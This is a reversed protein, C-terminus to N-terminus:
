QELTNRLIKKLRPKDYSNVYGAIAEVIKGNKDIIYVTPYVKVKFLDAIKDGNPIHVYTYGKKKFYNAAANPNRERASIGIVVVDEKAFSKHIEEVSPMAVLCPSCWTGWFDLLVVKGKLNKSSFMKGEQSVSSWKPIMSGIPLVDDKHSERRVEDFSTYEKVSGKQNTISYFSKPKKKNLSIIKIDKKIVKDSFAIPLLSKTSIWWIYTFVKKGERSKKAGKAKVQFSVPLESKIKYTLKGNKTEKGEYIHNVNSSGAFMMKYPPEQTFPRIRLMMMHQQLLSGVSRKQLQKLKNLTAKKDRKLLVEDGDYSFSFETNKGNLKMTGSAYIMAKDFGINKVEAREQFIKAKIVPWWPKGKVSTQYVEYEISQISLCAKSSAAVIEQATSLEQANVTTLFIVSLLALINKILNM